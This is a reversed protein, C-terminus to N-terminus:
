LLRPFSAFLLMVVSAGAIGIALLRTGHLQSWLLVGTISMAILAGAFMDLLLVWLIGMGAAKHLNKIFGWGNQATKTAKISPSGPVYEVLIIANPAYLRQRWIQSPKVEQGLFLVSKDPPSSSARPPNAKIPTNFFDGAWLGLDDVSTIESPDIDILVSSVEVAKGTDIRAVSKSHNLLFGSVGLFCFAIAGWLGTWAHIRKLWRMTQQGDMFRPLFPHFRVRREGPPAKRAKLANQLRTNLTQGSM